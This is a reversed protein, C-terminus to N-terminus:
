IQKANFPYQKVTNIYWLTNVEHNNQADHIDVQDEGDIINHTGYLTLVSNVSATM